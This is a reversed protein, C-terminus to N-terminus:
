GLFVEEGAGSDASAGAGSGGGEKEGGAEGSTMVPANVEEPPPVLAEKVVEVGEMKEGDGEETKKEETAEASTASDVAVTAAASAAAVDAADPVLVAAAEGDKSAGNVDASGNTSTITGPQLARIFELALRPSDYSTEDSSAEILLM